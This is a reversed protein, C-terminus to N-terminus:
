DTATTSGSAVAQPLSEITDSAAIRSAPRFNKMREIFWPLTMASVIVAWVGAFSAYLV